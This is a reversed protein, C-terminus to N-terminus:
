LLFQARYDAFRRTLEAPELGFDAPQYRHVGRKATNHALYHSMRQRAVETMPTGAFDCIRAMAGLPDAMLDPYRVDLIQDAAGPRRAPDLNPTVAAIRDLWQRGIEVRDVHDTRAVRVAVCLSCTSPVTALPDRHMHVIRADPYVRLLEALSWLHFPCKLVVQRAPLRWLITQVQRRHWRYAATLDQEALWAGYSPVRYRMEYVMSHFTNGLLRHCEDPRRADLFHISPLEPAVRYYEDVYGQASDALREHDAPTGREGVPFMLEWLAPARLDPHEALLNHVLTTGTRLLGTIILPKPVPVEAIAPHRAVAANVALTTAVASVLGGRVAAVGAPTLAAEAALSAALRQLATRWPFDAPEPAGGDALIAAPRWAEAVTGTM